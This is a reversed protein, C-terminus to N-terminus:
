TGPIKIKIKTPEGSGEEPEIVEYHDVDGYGFTAVKVAGKVTGDLLKESGKRAGELTGVIAPAEKTEEATESLLGTTSDVTAEKVGAAFQKAPNQKQRIEKHGQKAEREAQRAEEDYQGQRAMGFQFFSVSVVLLIWFPSRWKM